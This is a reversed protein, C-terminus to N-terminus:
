ASREHLSAASHVLVMDFTVVARKHDKLSDVDRQRDEAFVVEYQQTLSCKMQTSVEDDDEVILITPKTDMSREPLLSFLASSRVKGLNVASKSIAATPKWSSSPISSDSEWDKKRRRRSRGSCHNRSSNKRCVAAMTKSPLVWPTAKM